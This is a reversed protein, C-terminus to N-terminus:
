DKEVKEWAYFRARRKGPEGNKRRLLVTLQHRRGNHLFETVDGLLGDFRMGDTCRVTDGPKVTNLEVSFRRVIVGGTKDNSQISM